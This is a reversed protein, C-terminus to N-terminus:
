NFSFRTLVAVTRAAHSRRRKLKGIMRGILSGRRSYSGARGDYGIRSILWMAGDGQLINRISRWQDGSCYMSVDKIKEQCRLLRGNRPGWGM